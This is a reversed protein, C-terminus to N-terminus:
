KNRGYIEKKVQIFRDMFKNRCRNALTKVSDTTWGNIDAIVKQKLGDAYMGYLIKDCPQPLNRVIEKVAELIEAYSSSHESENENFSLQELEELKGEVIGPTMSIGNDESVADKDFSEGELIESDDGTEENFEVVSFNKRNDRWWNSAQNKLIALFYTTLSASKNVYKGGKINEYLAICADQYIERRIEEPVSTYNKRLFAMAKEKVGDRFTGDDNKKGNFFENFARENTPIQLTVIKAMVTPNYIEIRKDVM